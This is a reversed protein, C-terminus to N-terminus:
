YDITLLTKQNNLKNLVKLVTYPFINFSYIYRNSKYSTGIIQLCNLAIAKLLNSLFLEEM